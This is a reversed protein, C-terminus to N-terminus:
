TRESISTDKWIMQNLKIIASEAITSTRPRIEDESEREYEPFPELYVSNEVTAYLRENLPM